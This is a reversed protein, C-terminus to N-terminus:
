ESLSEILFSDFRGGGKNDLFGYLNGGHIDCDTVNFVRTGNLLAIINCGRLEVRLIAGNSVSGTTSTVFTLTGDVMKTLNIPDGVNDIAFIWFNNADKGRFHLNCNGSFVPVELQIAIQDTEAIWVFAYDTGSVEYAQGLLIGFVSTGTGAVGWVQGTDASGLSTVSDARNFSDSVIVRKKKQEDAVGGWEERYIAKGCNSFVLL